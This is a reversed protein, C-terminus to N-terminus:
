WVIELTLIGSDLSAQCTGELVDVSARVVSLGLGAHGKGSRSESKRWFRDFLYPLDEPELDPAPNSVVLKEPSARVTVLADRPAYSVANGILNQLIARWLVPDILFRGPEVRLDFRIGRAEIESQFRAIAEALSAELDVVERSRRPGTEARALLSLTDLLAELESIVELMDTGSKRSFDEPWRAGVETMVRLEALPTRLEHAADSTFRRERTFSAELRELLENLKAAVGNLEEPLGEPDLRRDLDTVGIAQVDASLRDLPKLGARVVGNLIVLGAVVAAGGVLAILLAILRVIRHIYSEDSAVLIRLTPPPLPDVEDDDIAPVYTRWHARGPLGDPLITDAFSGDEEGFTAPKALSRLGLSPSKLFSSGDEAFIEFYDEQDGTGFGAFAQIDLDIEFEGDDIESATIIAQTKTALGQDFQRELSGRISFYLGFGGLLLILLSVGGIRVALDRRISRM